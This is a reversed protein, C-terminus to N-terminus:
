RRRPLRTLFLGASGVGVLALALVWPLGTSGNPGGLADTDTRPATPESGSGSEPSEAAAPPPTAGAALVTYTVSATCTSGATAQVTTVGIDIDEPVLAIQLAGNADSQVSFADAAGGEIALDIDISSSAPFGSGEITLTSGVNVTAPASLACDAAEVPAALSAALLGAAFAARVLNGPRRTDM